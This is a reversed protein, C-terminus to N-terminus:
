SALSPFRPDCTNKSTPKLLIKEFESSCKQFGQLSDVFKTQQKFNSPTHGILPFCSDSHTKLRRNKACGLFTNSIQSFKDLVSLFNTQQKFNSPTHGILLSCSDSHAKLRRTKKACGPFVKPFRHFSTKFVNLSIRKFSILPHITLLPFLRM